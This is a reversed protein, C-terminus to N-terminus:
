ATCHGSGPGGTVVCVPTGLVQVMCAMFMSRPGTSAACPLTGGPVLTITGVSFWLWMMSPFSKPLTHHCITETRTVSGLAQGLASPFLPMVDSCARRAACACPLAAGSWGVLKKRNKSECGSPCQAKSGHPARPSFKHCLGSSHWLFEDEQPSAGAHAVRRRSQGAHGPICGKRTAAAPVLYDLWQHGAPRGRFGGRYRCFPGDSRGIWDACGASWARCSCHDCDAGM